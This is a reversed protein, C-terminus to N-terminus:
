GPTAAAARRRCAEPRTREGLVVLDLDHLPLAARVGRAVHEEQPIRDGEAGPGDQAQAQGEVVPLVLGEALDDERRGLGEPDQAHAAAAAGVRHGPLCASCARAPSRRGASGASPPRRTRRSRRRPPGPPPASGRAGSDRRRWGRTRSRPRVRAIVPSKARSVSYETATAGASTRSSRPRGRSRRPLLSTEDVEPPLRLEDPEGRALAEDLPEAASSGSRPGRAPAPRGASGGRAAGRGSTRATKGVPRKDHVLLLARGTGALRRPRVVVGRARDRGVLQLALDCREARGRNGSEHGQGQPAVPARRREAEVQPRM